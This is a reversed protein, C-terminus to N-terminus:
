EQEEDVFSMQIGENPDFKVWASFENNSKSILDICYVPKGKELTKREDNSFVHGLFSIPIIKKEFNPQFGVFSKGEYTSQGLKGAVSFKKGTKKSVAEIIIENGTLLAECEADTFRHQSWERNFSITEGNWEGTYKEKQVFAM